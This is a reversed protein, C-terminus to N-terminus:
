WGFESYFSDRSVSEIARKIYPITNSPLKNLPFWGLDDCKNPERNTIQGQWKKATFFFDVRIDTEKRHMVHILEFDEPKITLGIEEEIERAAAERLTEGEEVHGAPLSYKGDEYGTRFRRSLLIKRNRILLLYSSSITKFREM